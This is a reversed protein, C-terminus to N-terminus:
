LSDNCTVLTCCDVLCFNNAIQLDFSNKLNARYRELSRTDELTWLGELFKIANSLRGRKSKTPKVKPGSLFLTWSLLNQHAIEIDLEKMEVFPPEFQSFLLCMDEDLNAHNYNSEVIKLIDAIIQGLAAELSLLYSKNEKNKTEDLSKSRMRSLINPFEIGFYLVMEQLDAIDKESWQVRSVPDIFKGTHLFYTTVSHLNYKIKNGGPTEFTFTYKGYPELTIPDMEMFEQNRDDQVKEKVEKLIVSSTQRVDHYHVNNTCFSAFISKM